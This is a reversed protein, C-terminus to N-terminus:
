WPIYLSNLASDGDYLDSFLVYVGALHTHQRVALRVHVIELLKIFYNRSIALSVIANHEFYLM